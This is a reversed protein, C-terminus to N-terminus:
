STVSNCHVHCFFPIGHGEVMDYFMDDTAFISSATAALHGRHAMSDAFERCLYHVWPQICSRKILFDSIQKLRPSRTREKKHFIRKISLYESYYKSYM